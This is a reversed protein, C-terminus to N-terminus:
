SRGRHAAVERALDEVKWAEAFLPQGSLANALTLYLQSGLTAVEKPLPEPKSKVLTKWDAVGQAKASEKAQAVASYWASTRYHIRLFEKSLQVGNHLIRLEDPGIADVLMLDGDKSIAWELKGDALELGAEAARWKLFAAVWATLGLMENFADATLGSISLAEGLSLHRDTSELKTFCELVPFEWKEGPQAKRGPYGAHALYQPDRHAREILSSGEPCSFRFVVELPILKPPEVAHTASYDYAVAGLIAVARPRQATVARVTIKKVPKPTAGLRVPVTLNGDDTAGLYHTKLGEVCLRVGLEGYAQGLKGDMLFAKCLPTQSFKKWQASDELQEFLVAALTALAEGKRALDDPMRGWDFVSYADSYDFVLANEGAARFHGLLNKVSGRYLVPLSM